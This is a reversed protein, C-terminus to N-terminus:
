RVAVTSAPTEVSAGTAAPAAKEEGPHALTLAAVGILLAVAASMIAKM